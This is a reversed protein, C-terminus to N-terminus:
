LTHIKRITDAVKSKQGKKKLFVCDHQSDFSGYVQFKKLEFDFGELYAKVEPLQKIGKYLPHVFLERHLGICSERLFEESGRLIEYEAGQADIKLFHYSVRACLEQLVDDLRRCAIRETRVLQAREFWTNAAYEPGV